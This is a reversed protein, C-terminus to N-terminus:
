KKCCRHHNKRQRSLSDLSQCCSNELANEHGHQECCGGEFQKRDFNISTRARSLDVLRTVNPDELLGQLNSRRGKDTMLVEIKSEFLRSLMKAGINKVVVRDAHNALLMDVLHKKGSCGAGLSPNPASCILAGNDDVFVFHHAKTFHNSLQNDVIPLATIM